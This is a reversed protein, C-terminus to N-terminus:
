TNYTHNTVDNTIYPFPLHRYYPTNYDKLRYAHTYSANMKNPSLGFDKVKQHKRQPAKRVAGTERFQDM